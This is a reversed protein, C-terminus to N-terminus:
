APKYDGFGKGEEALSKLLASPKVWDGYRENLECVKEYIKPLGILDAYFMPGGWYRPFGYGYHWIVDIDAARIALGEELVMAGTNIMAYLYTELIEEDSFDRREFGLEASTKVILDETFPDPEGKRNGDEYTYWGAKTKQGYRGTEYMRDLVVSQRRDGYLKKQEQRVLYRVDIGALDNMAFPGMPFGFDYIVKDIQWPLAGEEVMFEAIRASPHLMRNGVFGDGVGVLVGIKRIKKALAMITAITEKSSDKTRVNEMLKMINAPSFFHTGCVKDPRNTATAIENIDLTSTNSALIAEPKCVKDLEAFIKKKLGMEEFVAEIVIDVDALDAYDTTGSILSMCQDMKEQSIRGRSVSGAYNAKVKELGADLADQAIDVVVVPIGVNAFNMAIGGGMTGSGIIAAKNIEQIATDKPVDPIKTVGREAFFMHRMSKAEATMMLRVFTKREFALGEVIDMKTSAEVTNICEFPSEMNRSKPAVKKRWDEFIQPDVNSIKDTQAGTQRPTEGSDAKQEALEVARAVLDGEVVEDIAGYKLATAADIPNGGVIMELAKEVGILRPLRQTGGGGPIFGLHVEPQGVSVSPAAIRYHSGMALEMGGGLAMGNIAAVVPKPAVEIERIFNELEPVGEPTAMGFEGIDAGAVFMRGAGTIVMGKCDDDELCAYFHESLGKKVAFSLANAPPYDITIVGIAGQKEFKVVDTM